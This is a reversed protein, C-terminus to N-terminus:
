TNEKLKYPKFNTQWLQAYKNLKGLLITENETRNNIEASLLGNYFLNKLMWIFLWRWKKINRNNFM